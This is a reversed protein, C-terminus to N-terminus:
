KLWLVRRVLFEMIGGYIESQLIALWQEHGGDLDLGGDEDPLDFREHLVLRAQNLVSCWDDAHKKPVVLRYEMEGSRKRGTIDHLDALVVDLSSRFQLELDPLVLNEWDGVMEDEADDMAPRGLPSPFLRGRAAASGNPDAAGVLKNLMLFELERIRQM